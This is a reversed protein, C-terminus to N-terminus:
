AQGWNPPKSSPSRDPTRRPRGPIVGNNTIPEVSAARAKAPESGGENLRKHIVRGDWELTMEQRNFALLKFAGVM